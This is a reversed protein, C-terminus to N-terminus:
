KNKLEQIMDAFNYCAGHECEGRLYNFCINANLKAIILQREEYRGLEYIAKERDGDPQIKGM